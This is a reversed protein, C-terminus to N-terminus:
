DKYNMKWVDKLEDTIMDVTLYSVGIGFDTKLKVIRNFLRTDYSNGIFFSRKINDALAENDTYITVHRKIGSKYETWTKPSDAKMGKYVSIFNYERHVIGLKRDQEINEKMAFGINFLDAQTKNEAKWVPLRKKDVKVGDLYHMHSLYFETANIRISQTFIQILM